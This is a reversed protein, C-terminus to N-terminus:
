EAVGPPGTMLTSYLALGSVPKTMSFSGPVAIKLMM